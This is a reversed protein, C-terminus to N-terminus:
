FLSILTVVDNYHFLVTSYNGEIFFHSLSHLHVELMKRKLDTSLTSFFARFILHQKVQKLALLDDFYKQVFNHFTNDDLDHPPDPIHPLNLSPFEKALKQHLIEIQQLSRLITGLIHVGNRVVLQVWFDRLENVTDVPYFTKVTISFSEQEDDQSVERLKKLWKQAEGQSDAKFAYDDLKITSPDEPDLQLESKSTLEISHVPEGQDETYWSLFQGSIQSKYKRFSSHLRNTQRIELSGSFDLFGSLNSTWLNEIIDDQDAPSQACEHTFFRPLAKGSLFEIRENQKMAALKLIENKELNNVLNLLGADPKTGEPAERQSKEGRETHDSIGSYLQSKAYTNFRFTKTNQKVANAIDKPSDSHPRPSPSPSLIPSGLNGHVTRVLGRKQVIAHISKPVSDSKRGILSDFQGSIETEIHKKVLKTM